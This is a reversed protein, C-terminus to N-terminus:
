LSQKLIMRFNAAIRGEIKKDYLIRQVQALIPIDSTYISGFNVMSPKFLSRTEIICLREPQVTYQATFNNRAAKEDFIANFTVNATEKNPNLLYIKECEFVNEDEAVIGDAYCHIRSLTESCIFSSFVLSSTGKPASESNFIGSTLQVITRESSEIKGGFPKFQPIQKNSIMETGWVRESHVPYSFSIPSEDEFYLTFKVDTDRSSPNFMLLYQPEQQSSKVPDNYVIGHAFYQVCPISPDTNIKDHFAMASSHRALMNGGLVALGTQMCRTLFSKRNM